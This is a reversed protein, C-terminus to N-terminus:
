RIDDYDKRNIRFCLLSLPLKGKHNDKETKRYQGTQPYVHQRHLPIRTEMPIFTILIDAVRKFFLLPFIYQKFDSADIMGRLVNAAGWLYDELQKQTM